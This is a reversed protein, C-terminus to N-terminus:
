LGLWRTAYVDEGVDLDRRLVELFIAYRLRWCLRPAFALARDALALIATPVRRM